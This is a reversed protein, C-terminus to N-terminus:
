FEGSVGISPFIPFMYFEHRKSPNVNHNYYYFFVNNHNTVNIINLTFTNKMNGINFKKNIGIDWRFYPPFRSANYDSYTEEWSYTYPEGTKHDIFYYKYKGNVATFPSGTSFVLVTSVSISFPLDYSANINISHTKDYYTPVYTTDRKIYTGSFSYGLW